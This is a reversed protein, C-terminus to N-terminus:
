SFVRGFSLDSDNSPIKRAAATVMLYQRNLRVEVMRSISTGIAFALSLILTSISALLPWPNIELLILIILMLVFNFLADVIDELVKDIVSANGVSARLFRLRKYVNDCSQVFAVLSLENHRDPRFVRRLAKLKNKDVVGDEDVALLAIVDFSLVGTKTASLLRLYTVESSKICEDRTSAPGFATSFPQKDDM